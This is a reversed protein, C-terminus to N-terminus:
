ARSANTRRCIHRLLLTILLLLSIGATQPDTAALAPSLQVRVLLAAICAQILKGALYEAPHVGLPRLFSMCQAYVSVGGFCAAASILPLKLDLPLKLEALAQCGGALEMVAMIPAEAASGLMGSLLRAAVSFLAMYGAITLLTLAAGTVASRSRVESSASSAPLDSGSYRLLVGSLVAAGLQAGILIRGLRASGLMGAAVGSLLFAPSAGSALLAARLMSGPPDSSKRPSAALAAAGAPSGSMLGVLLAGTCGAPLRFFRTIGSSARELLRSVESCTLAPVAILYPLLAPAVSLAWSSLAERAASLAEEPQMCILALYCAACIPRLWKLM